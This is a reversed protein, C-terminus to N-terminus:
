SCIRVQTYKEYFIKKNSELQQFKEYSDYNEGFFGCLKVIVLTTFM